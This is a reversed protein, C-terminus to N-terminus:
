KKLFELLQERTNNKKGYIKHFEEHAVKSLTIGNDMEFRLEPYDSFNLIHHVVLKGGIEGSKNCKFSDRKMVSWSWKRYKLSHRIKDREPSIGGKWMYSKEGRNGLNPKGRKGESIKKGVWPEKKIGRSKLGNRKAAELQKLSFKGLHSASMQKKSEESHHKGWLPHKEKSFNPRSKGKYMKSYRARIEPTCTKKNAEGIKRKHEESMKYGKKFM